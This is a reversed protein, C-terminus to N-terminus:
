EKEQHRTRLGQYVDTTIISILEWDLQLYDTALMTAIGHVVTWIELHFLKAADNALGTYDNVYGIMQHFLANEDNIDENSRNRMYLLKFLEKEEKAFRMYGMGSAKYPTYENKEIEARIYNTSIQEAKKLIAHKLEEISHFNSFIPQTSCQLEAAISRANIAEAGNKRVITLGTEIIQDKTIKVKPPM